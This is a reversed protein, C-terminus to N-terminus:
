SVIYFPESYDEPFQEIVLTNKHGHHSMHHGGGSLLVQTDWVSLYSNPQTPRGSPNATARLSTFWQSMWPYNEDTWELWKVLAPVLGANELEITSLRTHNSFVEWHSTRYWNDQLHLICVVKLSLVLFTFYYTYQTLYFVNFM